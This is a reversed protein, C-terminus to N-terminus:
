RIQSDCHACLPIRAGPTKNQPNWTGKGRRPASLGASTGSGPNKYNLNSNAPGGTQLTTNSPTISTDSYSNNISCASNSIKDSSTLAGVTKSLQRSILSAATTNSKSHSSTTTIPSPSPKFCQAGSATMTIASSDDSLSTVALPSPKINCSQEPTRCSRSRSRRKAKNPLDTKSTEMPTILSEPSSHSSDGEYNTINTTASVSTSVMTVPKHDVPSVSREILREERINRVCREIKEFSAREVLSCPQYGLVPAVKESIDTTQQLFSSATSSVTSSTQLSCRNLQSTLDSHFIKQQTCVTAEFNTPTSTQSVSRKDSPTPTNRRSATPTKRTNRSVLEKVCYQYHPLTIPKHLGTDTLLPRRQSSHVPTCTDEPSTRIAREKDPTKERSVSEISKKSFSGTKKKRDFKAKLENCIPPFLAASSYLSSYYTPPPDKKKPVNTELSPRTLIVSPDDSLDPIKATESASSCAKNDESKLTETNNHEKTSNYCRVPAVSLAQTMSPRAKEEYKTETLEHYDVLTPLPSYSRESVVTLATLMPSPARDTKSRKEKETPLYPATEEPLSVAEKYITAPAPEIPTFPRTPAITMCSTLIGPEFELPQDNQLSVSTNQENTNMVKYPHLQNEASNAQSLPTPSPVQTSLQRLSKRLYNPVEPPFVVVQGPTVPREYPSLSRVGHPTASSLELKRNECNDVKSHEFASFEDAFESPAPSEPRTHDVLTSLNRTCKNESLVRSIEQSCVSQRKQDSFSNETLKKQEEKSDTNEFVTELKQEVIKEEHIEGVTVSATSDYVTHRVNTTSKM